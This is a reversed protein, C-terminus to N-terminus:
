NRMAFFNKSKIVFNKWTDQNNKPHTRAVGWCCGMKPPPTSQICQLKRSASNKLSKECNNMDIYKHGLKPCM